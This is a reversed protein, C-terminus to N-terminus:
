EETKSEDIIMESEWHSSLLVMLEAALLYLAVSVTCCSVIAGSLTPETLDRPVRRLAEKSFAEVTAEDIAYELDEVAGAASRRECIRLHWAEKKLALLSQHETQGSQPQGRRM